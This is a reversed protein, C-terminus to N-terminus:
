VVERPLDPLCVGVDKLEVLCCLVGLVGFTGYQASPVAASEVVGCCTSSRPKLGPAARHCGGGCVPGQATAAPVGAWPRGDPGGWGGGPGPRAPLARVSSGPSPLRERGASTVAAAVRGLCAGASPGGGGAVPGAEGRGPLTRGGGYVSPSPGLGVPSDRRDPARRRQGGCGWRTVTGGGIRM